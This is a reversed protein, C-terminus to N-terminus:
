RTCIGKSDVLVNPMSHGAQPRGMLRQLQANSECQRAGTVLSSAPAVIVAAPETAPAVVVAPPETAPPAGMLVTTPLEPTVTAGASAPTVPQVDGTSCGAASLALMAAGALGPLRRWPQRAGARVSDAGDSSVVSGDQRKDMRVCLDGNLNEAILAAGEMAPMASLNFVNKDCEKCHRVRHDGTMDDWSAGCPEPIEVLHLAIPQHQPRAPKM